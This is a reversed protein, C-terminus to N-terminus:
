QMDKIHAIMLEPGAFLMLPNFSARKARPVPIVDIKPYFEGSDFDSFATTVDRIESIYKLTRLARDKAPNGETVIGFPGFNEMHVQLMNVHIWDETEEVTSLIGLERSGMQRMLWALAYDSGSGIMEYNLRDKNKEACQRVRESVSDAAEGCAKVYDAMESVLADAAPGALLGNQRGMNVAAAALAVFGAFYDDSGGFNGSGAAGPDIAIDGQGALAGDRSIVATVAGAAKARKLAKGVLAADDGDVDVIIAVSGALDGASGFDSLAIARIHAGTLGSYQQFIDRSALVAAYDTGSGAVVLENQPLPVGATKGLAARLLGEAEAAYGKIQTLVAHVHNSM